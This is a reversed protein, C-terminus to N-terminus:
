NGTLTFAAWYFPDPAGRHQRTTRIAKLQANRLADAKSQGAALGAFFDGMLQSTEVDPVKWLSAVVARAGALQFAQRLGAVGEGNEIDGLGTDCASLVVLETGRLDCGVIELGTLVGDDIGRASLENRHNCGALLLGCRLLPNEIPKGAMDLSGGAGPGLSTQENGVKAQQGDFFFGHTSFVLVRPHKLQKAVGELARDGLYMQPESGVYKALAPRISAAENATGPLRPVMGLPASSRVKSSFQAIQGTTAASSAPTPASPSKGMERLAAQTSAIAEEPGLSYDPDAFVAAGSDAVTAAQPVAIDRSNTVFRIQWNELAFHRGDGAPLAAWPVLWLLGDPCLVLEHFGTLRRELPAWILQALEALSTQWDGNDGPLDGLQIGKLDGSRRHSQIARRANKVAQEIPAALGLDVISIEGRGTPPVIWAVFHPEGWVRGKADAAFSREQMRAFDVLISDQPLRRRLDDTSVWPDRREVETGTAALQRSLTQEEDILKELEAQKAARADATTRQMSLSALRSRVSILQRALEAAAPSGASRLLRTQASLAEEAVAKGNLLWGASAVALPANAPQAVALSLGCHFRWLENLRLFSLQEREPLDPLTRAVYRRAIRRSQQTSEIADAWDGSAAQSNAINAEVSAVTPHDGGYVSRYCALARKYYDLSAKFDGRDAAVTGLGNLSDAVDPHKDGLTERRIALAQELYKQAEAYDHSEECLVGLNHLEHAVSPHKEGHLQRQIDLALKFYKTAEKINGMRESLRGMNNLTIATTPHVVGLSNYDIELVANFEDAATAYDGTETAVLALNQLTSATSPDKEGLIARKIALAKEDLSRAAVFDGEGDALAGLNHLSEAVAISREGFVERRISLAREHYQKATPLDGSRYAIDGLASLANAVQEHKEGFLEEDIALAAAADTWARSFQGIDRESLGLDYLAVAYFRNHEGFLDKMEGAFQRALKNAEEARGQQFLGHLKEEMSSLEAAKAVAQQGAAEQEEAPLTRVRRVVEAYDNVVRHVDDKAIWGQRPPNANPLDVLYYRATSIM